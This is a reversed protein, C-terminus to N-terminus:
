AQYLDSKCYSIQYLSDEKAGCYVLAEGPWNGFM